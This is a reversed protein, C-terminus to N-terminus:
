DLGDGMEDGTFSIATKSPPRNKVDSFCGAEDSTPIAFFPRQFLGQVPETQCFSLPRIPGATGPTLPRFLEENLRGNEPFFRKVPIEVQSFLPGCIGRKKFREM